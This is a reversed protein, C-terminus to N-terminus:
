ATQLKPLSRINGAKLDEVLRDLVEEAPGIPRGRGQEWHRLAHVSVRLRLCFEEQEEGYRKRLDKIKEPTWTMYGVGKAKM